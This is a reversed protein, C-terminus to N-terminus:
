LVRLPGIEGADCCFADVTSERGGQSTTPSLSTAKEYIFPLDTRPLGGEHARGTTNPTDATM